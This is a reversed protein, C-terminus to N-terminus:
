SIVMVLYAMGFRVANEVWKIVNMILSILIILLYIECILIVSFISESLVYVIRERNLKYMSTLLNIPSVYFM